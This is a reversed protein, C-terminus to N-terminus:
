WSEAWCSGGIFVGLSIPAGTALLILVVGLAAPPVAFMIIFPYLFSEFLSALLMYVLLVALFLAFALNRFSRDMEEHEASLAITHDTPLSMGAAIFQVEELVRNYPMGSINGHIVSVRTLDRREIRNLRTGEEIRVVEKLTIKAGMPTRILVNELHKLGKRDEERLRVLIDVDEDGDRYTTAVSGEMATKITDAIEKVTLKFGAAKERDVAIRIEPEEESSSSYVDRLGEVGMLKETMERTLDRIVGLDSGRIELIEPAKQKQRLLHIVDQNLIYEIEAAGMGALRPSVADALQKVTRERKEELVVTIRAIHPEMGGLAKEVKEKRDYGINVLVDKVEGEEKLVDVIRSALAETYELTSGPAATVELVFSGQDVEPLFEQGIRPVLTFSLGVILLISILAKARHSLAALLVKVYLDGLSRMVDDMAKWLPSLISQFGKGGMRAMRRFLGKGSNLPQVGATQSFLRGAELMPNLALAVFVSIILSFSITLALQAFFKGALGEVFLIPLFVIIHAFTSAVVPAQM